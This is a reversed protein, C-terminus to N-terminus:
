RLSPRWCSMANAAGTAVGAAGCDVPGAVPLSAPVTAVGTRDSAAGGVTIDAARPPAAEDEVGLAEEVFRVPGSSLPLGLPILQGDMMSVPPLAFGPEEPAPAAPAVAAFGFRERAGGAGGSRGGGGRRGPVPLRPDRPRAPRSALSRPVPLQLDALAPLLPLGSCHPVSVASSSRGEHRGVLRPPSEAPTPDRSPALEPAVRRATSADPRGSGLQPPRSGADSGRGRGVSHPRAPRGTAAREATSAHWHLSGPAVRADSSDLRHYEPFDAVM